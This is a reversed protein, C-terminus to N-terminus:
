APLTRGVSVQTHSHNHLPARSLGKQVSGLRARAIALSPQLVPKQSYQNRQRREM